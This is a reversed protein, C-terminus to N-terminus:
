RPLHALFSAFGVSLPPSPLALVPDTVPYPRLNEGGSDNTYQTGYM